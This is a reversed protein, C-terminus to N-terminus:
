TKSMLDILLKGKGLSSAYDALSEDLNQLTVVKQYRTRLLGKKFDERLEGEFDKVKKDKLFNHILHFGQISKQKFILESPHIESIMKLSLSGYVYLTSKEPLSNFVKGTTEGAVCEFGITAKLENSLERLNKCFLPDESNLVYPSGEAKIEEIQEARRVINILPYNEELCKKRFFNGVDSMSATQLAAKHGVLSLKGKCLDLMGYVTLPNVIMNALDKPECKLSEQTGMLALNGLKAIAHSGWCGQGEM